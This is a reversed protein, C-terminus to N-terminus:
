IPKSVTKSEDNGTAVNRVILSPTDPEYAIHRFTRKNSPYALDITGIMAYEYFYDSLAMALAHQRNRQRSNM